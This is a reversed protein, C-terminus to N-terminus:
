RNINELPRNFRELNEPRQENRSGLRNAASGDLSIRAAGRAESFISSIWAKKLAM